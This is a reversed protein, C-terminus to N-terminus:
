WPICGGDYRPDYPVHAWTERNVIRRVSQTSTLFVAAIRGNSWGWTNHQRIRQVQEVTLNTTHHSAGRSTRGRESREAMNATHDGTRMHTPRVCLGRDCQHLLMEGNALQGTFAWYSVRHAKSTPSGALRIDGHGSRGSPRGKWLWCEGEVDYGEPPAAKVINGLIRLQLQDLNFSMYIYIPTRHKARVHRSLGQWTRAVFGCWRCQIVVPGKERRDM